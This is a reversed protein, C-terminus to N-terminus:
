KNQIFQQYLSELEDSYYEEWTGGYDKLFIGPDIRKYENHNGEDTTIYISISIQQQVEKIIM